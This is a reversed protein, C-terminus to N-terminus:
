GLIAWSSGNWLYLQHVTLDYVQLGEAPSSIATRQTSTMRPSLFGQTTSAVDLIASAVPSEGIGLAGTLTGGTLALDLSAHGILSATITGASFNGSGDREVITSPTDVNTAANAALEASHINSASSGGVSGVATLGTNTISVDGIMAVDTAVNSGNGVFIHASTLTQSLEGTANVTIVQGVQSLTIHTGSVVQVAGTLNPNSDAHISLVAANPALLSATISGDLIQESANIHKFNATM